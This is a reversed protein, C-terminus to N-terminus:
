QERQLNPQTVATEAINNSDLYNASGCSISLVGHASRVDYEDQGVLVSEGSDAGIAVRWALCWVDILEGILADKESVCVRGERYTTWGAPRDHCPQVRVGVPYSCVNMFDPATYMLELIPRCQQWAPQLRGPVTRSIRTLPVQAGILLGCELRAIPRRKGGCDTELPLIEGPVTAVAASVPQILIPQSLLPKCM